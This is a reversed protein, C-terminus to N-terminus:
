NFFCFCFFVFFFVFAFLCVFVCVCCAFSCIENKREGICDVYGDLQATEIFGTGDPFSSKLLVIDAPIRNNNRCMLMDGVQIEHSCIQKELRCQSFSDVRFFFGLLCVFCCFLRFSSYFPVFVWHCSRNKHIEFQQSQQWIKHTALVHVPLSHL